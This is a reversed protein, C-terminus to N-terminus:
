SQGRFSCFTTLLRAPGLSKPTEAAGFLVPSLVDPDGHKKSSIVHFRLKSAKKRVIAQFHVEFCSQILLYTLITGISLVALQCNKGNVKPPLVYRRCITSLFSVHTFCTSALIVPSVCSTSLFPFIVFLTNVTAEHHDPLPDLYESTPLWIAFFDLHSIISSARIPLMLTIPRHGFQPLAMGARLPCPRRRTKQESLHLLLYARCCGLRVDCSFTRSCLHSYQPPTKM